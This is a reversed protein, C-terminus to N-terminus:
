GALENLFALYEPTHDKVVTVKPVWVSYQGLKDRRTSMRLLARHLEPEQTTKNKYRWKGLSLISKGARTFSSKQLYIQALDCKRGDPDEIAFVDEAPSGEPARVLLLCTLMPIWSPPTRNGNADKRWDLWGGRAHVEDVSDVMEPVDDSDYDLNEKFQLRYRLVTYEVGDSWLSPKENPLCLLQEKDFVISGPAFETALDGTGQVIQIKPLGLAISDVDGTGGGLGPPADQQRAVATTTETDLSDDEETVVKANELAAGFSKAVM